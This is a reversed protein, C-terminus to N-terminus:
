LWRRRDPPVQRSLRRGRAITVAAYVLVTAFVIIWAAFVYSM